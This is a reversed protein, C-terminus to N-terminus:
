PKGDSEVNYGIIVLLILILISVCSILAGKFISRPAYRWIIEREGKEVFVGQFAADVPLVYDKKGDIFVRWGPDWGERFILYCDKPANIKVRAFGERFETIEMIAPQEEKGAEDLKMRVEGEIVGRLSGTVKQYRLEEIAESVSGVMVPNQEFSFRGGPKAYEHIDIDPQSPDDIRKWLKSNADKGLGIAHTVGTKELLPSEINKIVGFHTTFPSRPSFQHPENLVTVFLRYRAPKLPDYGQFDSVGHIAALNPMWSEKLDSRTYHFSYHGSPDFAFTRPLKNKPLDNKFIEVSDPRFNKEAIFKTDIRCFSYNLIELIALLILLGKWPRKPIFPILDLLFISFLIIGSVLISGKLTLNPVWGLAPWLQLSGNNGRWLFFVSLIALFLFLIRGPNTLNRKRLIRTLGRAILPAALLPVFALIRRPDHFGTYGPLIKAYLLSFPNLGLTLFACFIVTDKARGKGRSSIMGWLLFLFGAAGIYAADGADQPMAACGLFSELVRRFSLSGERIIELPLAGTRHTNRILEMTPFLQASAIGTGLILSALIFIGNRIEKNRGKKRILNLLAWGAYVIFSYYVAQPAGTFVQLTACITMGAFWKKKGTKRFRELLFLMWPFLAMTNLYAGFALHAWTTGSLTGILAAGLSPLHPFRRARLWFYIGLGMLYIHVALLLSFMGARPLLFFFWNLPYFVAVQPNALLPMGAYLSSTWLPLHGAKLQLSVACRYPYFQTVPDMFFPMRNSLVSPLFLLIPLLLILSAKYDRNKLISIVSFKM